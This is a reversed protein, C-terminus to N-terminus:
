LFLWQLWALRNNAIDCLRVTNRNIGFYNNGREFRIEGIPKSYMFIVDDNNATDAKVAFYYDGVTAIKKYPKVESLLYTGELDYGYSMIVAKFYDLYLRDFSVEDIEIDAIDITEVSKIKAFLTGIKNLKQIRIIM